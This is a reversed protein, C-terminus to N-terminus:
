APSNEPPRSSASDTRRYWRDYLHLTAGAALVILPLLAPQRYRISSVFIMHLLTFYVAPLVCLVFPWDRRAFLVTGYIAGIALPVFGIALLAALRPSGFEAANPWPSWMRRFKKWALEIARVPNARTWAVSADRFYQDVRDEFLGPKSDGEAAEQRAFEETLPEVFAMNSGGDANPNLGDYLSAGVQLSTPVFRGAVQYNRIWWPLLTCVMAAMMALSLYAQKTRQSSFVLGIGCAFPVFLLWSPRMLTAVGALMGGAVAWGIQRSKDRARWAITWAVLQFIMLPCFPAESLVFVSPAIAEPHVAAIGAALIAGRAGFLVGGLAGVGAVSLTGLMVGITRAYFAPPDDNGVARFVGALILPYGPTRFVQYKRPGFEYAEGRAIKQALGWYSESDPFGFKKDAPLRSEWWAAALLRVGLAVVLIAALTTWTCSCRPM